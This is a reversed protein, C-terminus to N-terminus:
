KKPYYRSRIKTKYITDNKEDCEKEAEERTTWYNHGINNKEIYILHFRSGVKIVNYAPISKM